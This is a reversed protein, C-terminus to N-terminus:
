SDPILYYMNVCWAIQSPAFGIIWSALMTITPTFRGILQSGLGFGLGLGLPFVPNGTVSGSSKSPIVSLHAM